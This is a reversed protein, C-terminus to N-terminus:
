FLINFVVQISFINSNDEVLKAVRVRKDELKYIHKSKEEIGTLDWNFRLGLDCELGNVLFTTGLGAVVSPVFTKVKWASEADRKVSVEEGTEYDIYRLANGNVDTYEYEHTTAFNLNLRIGGEIYVFPVQLRLVLPINFNYVTRADNVKYAGWFSDYGGGDRIEETLYNLGINFEPVFSIFPNLRYKLILGIDMAAGLWENEGYQSVFDKDGPYNALAAFGAAMHLGFSLRRAQRNSGSSARAEEFSKYEPENSPLKNGYGDDVTGESRAAPIDNGYGDDEAFANASFCMMAIASAIILKKM